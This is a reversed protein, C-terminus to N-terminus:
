PQVLSPPHLLPFFLPHGEPQESSYNTSIPFSFPCLAKRCILQYELSTVYVSVCLQSSWVLTFRTMALTYCINLALSISLIVSPPTPPPLPVTYLFYTRSKATSNRVHLMQTSSSSGALFLSFSHTHVWDSWEHRVRHSGISQLGGPKETWPLPLFLILTIVTSGQHSLPISVAQLSPSASRTLCIGQLLFHWGVGTNKGTFDWPCLLRAAYLGHPWLSDSM